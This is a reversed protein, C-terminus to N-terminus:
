VSRRAVAAAETRSRVGLKTLINSVHVSVTKESIYLQRAIQRNTRGEVLLGLVDNERATLAGLGGPEAGEAPVAPSVSKGGDVESLEDLLPQAGLQSAVVRAAAVLENAASARGAARLVAALRTQSRAQEYQEGAFAEIASRWLAEHEAIAPPDIDALWRLRAWEADLRRLWAESEPGLSLAETRSQDATFRGEAHLQRGRLVASRRGLEPLAAVTASLAALGLASVRLRAAFWPQQWIDAVVAVLEDHVALAAATDRRQTHIEMAQSLGWIAIMGDDRWRSRLRPLEALLSADGRAVRVASGTTLLKLEAVQPPQAGSVSSVRVSEDWDGAIFHVLALHARADIGYVAWQRGAACARDWCRRYADRAAALDAVGLWLVGLQFLVRLEEGIQGAERARAAIQELQAAAAAPDGARKEEVALTTWADTAADPQEIEQAIEIAQKAWKVAEDNRGLQSLARAHTAALQARLATPRDGALLRLADDTTAVAEIEGEIALSHTAYSLLARARLETAGAPIKTLADRALSAARALHGAASAADAAALTLRSAGEEPADPISPLLELAAEFHQMGEQPAAVAVAEEGARISATYAVQLDHSQLAHRALEATTGVISEKALAAAFAAHLRVREGPLLDDYVAEGLLAHRFGYRDHGSPELVHADVAERLAAELETHPMGAVVELVTHPVLRGAVATLRAIARAPESLRDLRVLLLDALAAPVASDSSGARDAASLLEEIFFANGEAREVIRRIDREVMGPRVSRILARVDDDPLPGLHIRRVGPLRSWEAVATRLPHRRHLDDSRYSVMMAVQDGDLRTLLFGILDRTSQDAWHADEIILVLPNTQGIRALAALVAAFLEGRDLRSDAAGGSGAGITRHQPLLPVLPPFQEQLEAGLEPREGFLRGLAETFPLYPLGVDGFDICHGVLRIMRREGARDLLESLLRTKGVGADGSLLVSASAPGTAAELADVLDAMERSRGILPQVDVHVDEDQRDGSVVAVDLM